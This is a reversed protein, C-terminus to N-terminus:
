DSFCRLIDRFFIVPVSMIFEPNRTVEEPHVKGSTRKDGWNFWLAFGSRFRM